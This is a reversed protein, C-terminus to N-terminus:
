SVPHIKLMMRQIMLILENDDLMVQKVALNLCLSARGVLPICTKNLVSKNVSVTDGVLACVNM